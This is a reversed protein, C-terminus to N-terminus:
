KTKHKNPKSRKSSAENSSSAVHTTSPSSSSSARTSTAPLKLFGAQQLWHIWRQVYELDTHPIKNKFHSKIFASSREISMHPQRHHFYPRSFYEDVMTFIPNAEDTMEQVLKQWEPFSIQDIQYGCSKIGDVILQLSLESSNNVLHYAQGNTSEDQAMELIVKCMFDVPFAILPSTSDPAVQLQTLGILLRNDFDNDNSFGSSSASGIFGPRIVIAPYGRDIAEWVLLEAIYKSLNYGGLRMLNNSISWLESELPGEQRITGGQLVGSTSIHVLLKAVGSSGLEICTRTGEVNSPALRHYPLISNVYAGPHFIAQVSDILLQWQADTIGFHPKELSGEIVVVRQAFPKKLAKLPNEGLLGSAMVRAELIGLMGGAQKASERGSRRTSEKRPRVLCYITASTSKLLEALLSTGLFGSAGTLFVCKLKALSVFAQKDAGQPPKWLADLRADKMLTRLDVQPAAFQEASILDPSTARKSDDIYSAIKSLDTNPNLLVDVPLSVNFNQKIMNRLKIATLSDGGMQVFSLQNSPAADEDKANPDLTITTTTANGGKPNLQQGLLKYVAAKTESHKSDLNQYLAEIETKFHKLLAHRAPKESQTYLGSERTFEDAYLVAAAPIEFTRLQHLKGIRAFESLMLDVSEPLACVSAWPLGEAPSKPSPASSSSAAASSSTPSSSAALLHEMLVDKHPVVVAVLSSKFSDGYVFIQKVFPSNGVMLKEIKAPAVYEGQSLKFINKKRDIIAAGDHAHNLEVIDGTHYYGDADLAEATTDSDGYYGTMMDDRKVCLEGRPYPKDEVTYEEWSVLKWQLGGVFLGASVIGGCETSGYSERVRCKYCEWLFSIVEPSTPAGGTVIKDVRGGLLNYFDVLLNERTRKFEPSGPELDKTAEALEAKFEAYIKNWFAPTANMQHPRIESIDEFIRAMDGNYIAVAGGYYLHRYDNKRDSISWSVSKQITTPAYHHCLQGHWASASFMAGKPIGTSGSTYVLTELEDPKTIVEVPEEVNQGLRELDALSLLVPGPTKILTQKWEEVDEPTLLAPLAHGPMSAASATGTDTNTTSSSAASSSSAQPATSSPESSSADTSPNTTTMNSRNSLKLANRAASQRLGDVAAKVKPRIQYDALPEIQIIYKLTPCSEAATLFRPTLTQTCFILTMKTSNIIHIIAELSLTPGMVPGIISNVQCAYDALYWGLQVHSCIGVFQRPEVLQRLGCGLDHVRKGLEEFTIWKYPKFPAQNSGRLRVNIKNESTEQAVLEEVSKSRWDENGLTEQPERYGFAHRKAYLRFMKLLAQGTTPSEVLQDFIEQPHLEEEYCLHEHGKDRYCQPCLDFHL